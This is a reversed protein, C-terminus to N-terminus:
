TKRVGRKLANSHYQHVIEGFVWLTDCDYNTNQRNNCRFIAVIESKVENRGFKPRDHKGATVCVNKLIKKREEM